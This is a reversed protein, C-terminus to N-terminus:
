PLVIHLDREDSMIESTEEIFNSTKAFTVVLCSLEEPSLPLADLSGNTDYSIIHSVLFISLPTMIIHIVKFNTIEYKDKWNLTYIIYM